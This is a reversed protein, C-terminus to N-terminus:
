AILFWYLEILLSSIIKAFWNRDRTQIPCHISRRGDGVHFDCDSVDMWLFLHVREDAWGGEEGAIRRFFGCLDGVGRAGELVDGEWGAVLGGPGELEVEAYFAVQVAGDVEHGIGEEM